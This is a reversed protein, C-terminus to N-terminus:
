DASGSSSEGVVVGWSDTMEWNKSQELLFQQFRAQACCPSPNCLPGISLPPRRRHHSSHRLCPPAQPPADACTSCSSDSSVDDGQAAAQRSPPRARGWM